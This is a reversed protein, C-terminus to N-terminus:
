SQVFWHKLNKPTGLVAINPKGFKGNSCLSINERFFPEQNFFTTQL